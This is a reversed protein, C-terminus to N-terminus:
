TPHTQPQCKQLPPPPPPRYPRFSSFLGQSWTRLAPATNSSLSFPAARGFSPLLTLSATLPRPTASQLSFDLPPMELTALSRDPITVTVWIFSSALSTLSSKALDEQWRRDPSNLSPAM